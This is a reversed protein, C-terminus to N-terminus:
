SALTRENETTHRSGRVAHLLARLSLDRSRKGSVFRDLLILLLLIVGTVINQIYAPVNSFEMATTLVAIVLLGGLTGLASGRGGELRTGGIVVAAIALLSTSEGFVPSGTNVSLSQIVGAVGAMTGAFVFTGFVYANSRIGSAEASVPNSGVAFLNRGAVARTLWLHLLVLALVFVIARLTFTGEIPRSVALGFLPDLGSVPRSETIFHCLARFFLMSALTAVLSNIRLVVVLYGNVIGAAIGVGVGVIAAPIQGLEAQLGIATIGSLALIAGGSLDLKGAILVLTVGVAVLAATGVRDLSLSLARFELIGPVLSASIAITAVLIIAVRYRVIGLFVDSDFARRIANM